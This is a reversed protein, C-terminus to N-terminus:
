ASAGKRALIVVYTLAGLFGTIIGLPIESPSLTRALTDVIVMFVGGLLISSPITQKNDNGFLGRAVNPIILGVWGITGSICVSISTLLTAAAVVFATEVKYNIGLAMAEKEGLSLANLRWRIAILFTTCVIVVPLLLFLDEMEAGSLDGLMWFTISALKNEGDAIYKILGICANMLASVVVGALVLTTISDSKAIKQIIVALVAAVIGFGFSTLSTVFAGAGLLICIGAGVCAGAEVGLLGPSVLRNNFFSQYVTGSVSLAVGIVYSICVRPIRIHWLINYATTNTEGALLVDILELISIRYRGVCLCALIIVFSVLAIILMSIYFKKKNLLSNQEM